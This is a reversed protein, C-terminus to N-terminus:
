EVNLMVSETNARYDADYMAWAQVPPIIFEGRTLIRWSSKTV